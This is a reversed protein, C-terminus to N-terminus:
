ILDSKLLFLFCYFGKMMAGYMPLVKKKSMDFLSRANEVDGCKMLADILSTLVYPNYHFSKPMEKWLNKLLNLSEHKESQAYANFLLVYLIEDPNKVQNFLHIAKDL